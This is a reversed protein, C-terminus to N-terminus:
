GLADITKMRSDKHITFCTLGSESAKLILVMRGGKTNKADLSGEAM